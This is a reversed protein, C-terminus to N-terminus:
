GNPFREHLARVLKVAVNSSRLAAKYCRSYYSALPAEAQRMTADYLKQAAKMKAQAARLKMKAAAEKKKLAARLTKAEETRSGKGNPGFEWRCRSIQYDVGLRRAVWTYDNGQATATPIKEITVKVGKPYKFRFSDTGHDCAGMSTLHQATVTFSQNKNSSM